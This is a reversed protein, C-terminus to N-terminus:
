LEDIVNIKYAGYKKSKHPKGKVYGWELETWTIMQDAELTKIRDKVMRSDSIGFVARVALEFDNKTVYGQAIGISGDAVIGVNDKNRVHAAIQRIIYLNGNYRSSVKRKMDSIVQRKQKAELRKIWENKKYAMYEPDSRMKAAMQVNKDEVVIGMQNAWDFWDFISRSQKGDGGESSEGNNSIVIPSMPIPESNVKVKKTSRHSTRITEVINDSSSKHTHIDNESDKHREVYEKIAKAVTASILIRGSFGFEQSIIQM